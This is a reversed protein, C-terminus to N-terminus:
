SFGQVVLNYMTGLLAVLYGFSFEGNGPTLVQFFKQVVQSYKPNQLGDATIGIGMLPKDQSGAGSTNPGSKSTDKGPKGEQPAASALWVQSFNFLLCFMVRLGTSKM